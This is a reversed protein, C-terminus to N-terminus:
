DTLVPLSNSHTVASRSLACLVNRVPRKHRRARGEGKGWSVPPSSPHMKTHRRGASTSAAMWSRTASNRVVSWAAADPPRRGSEAGAAAASPGARWAAREYGGYDGLVGM